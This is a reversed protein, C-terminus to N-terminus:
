GDCVGGDKHHFRFRIDIMGDSSVDIKEILAEIFQINLRQYGETKQLACLFQNQEEERIEMKRIKQRIEWMRKEYFDEQRMRHERFASYEQCSVLGEKYEMYMMGARNSLKYKERMIQNQEELYVTKKKEWESHNMEMLAKSSVQKEKLIQRIRESCIRELTREKIYQKSCRREDMYYANRCYYSYSKKGDVRSLYYVAHMKGGCNRCYLIHRFMNGEDAIADKGSRRKDASGKEREKLKVNVQDFLGQGIIPEHSNAVIIREQGQTDSIGKQGEQLGERRRRQVLKGTYVPNSLIGRIVGPNWQHLMEGSIGYTHGYKNYDSIRHVKNRYLWSVIEEFSSGAAFREFLSRIIKANEPHIVLKRIGGTQETIYGYPAAGGTYAGRGAAMKRANMVKKSIDKAYMDNVLNRINMDLKRDSVNESMSDFGDTVAIFRVGLFPFIKEIYNGTELYDRGFRSLDKVMICNVHHNRIDNMLRGFGTREFSVGSIGRDIYTDFIEFRQKKQPDANERAIYQRIMEIQNEISESKRDDHDVSLRSYIGVSYIVASAEKAEQRVPTELYRKGTRAM